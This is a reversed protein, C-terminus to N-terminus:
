MRIIFRLIETHVMFEGASQKTDASRILVEDKDARQAGM